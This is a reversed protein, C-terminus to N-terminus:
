VGDAVCGSVEFGDLGAMVVDHMILDPQGSRAIALSEEGVEAELVNLGRARLKTVCILRISAEDDVVLVL